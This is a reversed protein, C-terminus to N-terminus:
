SAVAKVVLAVAILVIATILLDVAVRLRGQKVRVLGSLVALDTPQLEAVQSQTGATGGRFLHTIEAPTMEAWRCFGTKGLRPRLIGALIVVASAALLVGAAALLVRVPLPGRTIQSTLVALGAGTIAVLTGCKADLRTLEHRVGALEEALM